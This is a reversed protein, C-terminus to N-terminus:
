FESISYDAASGAQSGELGSIGVGVNAQTIMAVDNAGDGVALVVKDPNYQKMFTVLDSKQKPSM